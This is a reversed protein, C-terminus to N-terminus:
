IKQALKSIIGDRLRFIGAAKYAAVQKVVEEVHFFFYSNFSVFDYKSSISVQLMFLSYVASRCDSMFKKQICILVLGM